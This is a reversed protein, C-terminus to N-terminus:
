KLHLDLFATVKKNIEAQTPEAPADGAAAMMNHGGRTVTLLEATVGAKQLAALLKESQEHPVTKDKDGHVMLFPPDGKNVYGIPSGQKWLETKEKFPGGFLGLLGPAERDGSAGQIGASGERFDTPGCFDVVAQVKSSVGEYGGHGEYQAQDGMTGLCAVLHGGASSGWCGIKDPNVHYKLANARLWRVALKCDEIQAPWKAEGSLRYEISATFYGKLALNETPNGKHSGGSWGGGHIWLVAPMPQAPLQKPMAIEAHLARDGGKGIEVDHQFDVASAFREEFTQPKPPPANEAQIKLSAPLGFALAGVLASFIVHRFRHPPMSECRQLQPCLQVEGM